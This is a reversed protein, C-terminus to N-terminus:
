PRSLRLGIPSRYQLCDLLRLIVITNRQFYPERGVMMIGKLHSGGLLFYSDSFEQASGYEISSFLGHLIEEVTLHGLFDLLWNPCYSWHSEM